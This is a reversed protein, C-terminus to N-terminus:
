RRHATKHKAGAPTAVPVSPPRDDVREVTYGRQALLAPVGGPGALHAAGVIVLLEDNDALLKEIPTLWRQNRKTILTDYSAHDRPTMKRTMAALLASPDGQEWATLLPEIDNVAGSEIGEVASMLGDIQQNLPADTLFGMQEAATELGRKREPAIEADLLTEVGASVETGASNTLAMTAMWPQMRKLVAQDSGLQGAVNTLREFEDPKLLDALTKGDSLMGKTMSIQTITSYAEVDLVVEFYVHKAAKLIANFEATRWDIDRTFVHVSGFLYIESDADSVKWLAPKALAPTCLAAVALGTLLARRLTRM